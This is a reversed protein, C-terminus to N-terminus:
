LLSFSHLKAQWSPLSSSQWGKTAVLSFPTGKVFTAGQGSMQALAQYADQPLMPIIM